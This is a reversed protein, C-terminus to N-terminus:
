RKLEFNVSVSGEDSKIERSVAPLYGEAEVRILYAPYAMKPRVQYRGQDISFAWDECWDMETQSSRIGVVVRSTKLPQKTASDVVKGSIVLPALMRILFEQERAIFPQDSLQMGGYDPRCITALFGDTPAENWVWLGNEDASRGVHDYEFGELTGGVHYPIIKAGSMAKGEFDVVRVRVRGGPKLRFDVPAM